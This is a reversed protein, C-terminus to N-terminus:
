RNVREREREIEFCLGSQVQLEGHRFGDSDTGAFRRRRDSSADERQNGARNLEVQVQLAPM